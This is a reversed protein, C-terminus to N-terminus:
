LALRADDRCSMVFENCPVLMRPGIRAYATM